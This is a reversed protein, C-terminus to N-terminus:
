GHRSLTTFYAFNQTIRIFDLVLNSLHYMLENKINLFHLDGKRGQLTFVCRCVGFCVGIQGLGCVSLNQFGFFRGFNRCFFAIFNQYFWFVVSNERFGFFRVFFQRFSCFGLGRFGGTITM